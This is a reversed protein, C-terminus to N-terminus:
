LEYSLGIMLRDNNEQMSIENTNKSTLAQAKVLQLDAYVHLLRSYQFNSKVQILDFENVDSHTWSFNMRLKQNKKLQIEYEYLGKIAQTFPYRSTIAARDSDAFEGQETVKGGDITLYQFKMTHRNLNMQAFASYMQAQTFVPSTWEPDFKIPEPKDGMYSVGIRHQGINHILDASIVRHFGVQPLIEVEGTNTGTNYVGDYGLALQSMPKYLYSARWLSDEMIKGEVSGGMSTQWIIDSEPPKRVSYRIDSSASSGPFPQFTKPPTQFWPNSKSFHGQRNIEFGPGQDPIFVSSAFATLKVWPQESIWFLGTLGHSERNLPNWKFVPEITGLSWAEDMESWLIKKRGMVLTQTASSPLVFAFEKFKIYNLVPAGVAMMAESDLVMLEADRDNQLKFGVFQYTNQETAEFQPSLFSENQLLLQSNLQSWGISSFGLFFSFFLLQKRVMSAM